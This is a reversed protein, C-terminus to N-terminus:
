DEKFRVPLLLARKIGDEFIIPYIDKQMSVTIKDSDKFISLVEQMYVGNYAVMFREQTKAPLTIEVKTNGEMSLLTQKGNEITSKVVCRNKFLKKCKDYYKLLETIEKESYEVKHQADIRFVSEYDFYREGHFKEIVISDGFTLYPPSLEEATKKISIEKCSKIRKVMEVAQETLIFEMDEDLNAQKKLKIPRVYARFGDLAVIDVTNDIHKYKICVGRLMARNIDKGAQFTKCEKLAIILDETDITLLETGLKPFGIKDSSEIKDTIDIGDDTFTISNNEIKIDSWKNSLAKTLNLFNEAAMTYGGDEFEHKGKATYILNGMRFMIGDENTTIDVFNDSKKLGAVNAMEKFEKNNIKMKKIEKKNLIKLKDKEKRKSNCIKLATDM